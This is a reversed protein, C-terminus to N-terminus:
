GVRLYIKLFHLAKPLQETAVPALPSILLGAYRIFTKRDFPWIGMEEAKESLADIAVLGELVEPRFRHVRLDEQHEAEVANRLLRSDILYGRKASAMRDRLPLL